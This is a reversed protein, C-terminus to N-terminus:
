NKQLEQIAMIMKIGVYTNDPREQKTMLEHRHEILFQIYRVESETLSVSVKKENEQPNM